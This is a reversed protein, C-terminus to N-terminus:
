KRRMWLWSTPRARWEWLMLMRDLDSFADAWAPLADDPIERDHRSIDHTKDFRNTLREVMGPSHSDRVKVLLDAALLGSGRVPDMLDGEASDVHCLVVSRATKCLAFDAHTWLGGVEVRDAVGNVEALRTCLARAVVDGDRALVRLRPMARALGVAYYGESTGIDIALTYNSAIIGAIVPWLPADLTGLLRPARAGKSARVAYFMGKFPGAQVVDGTQQVVNNALLESRWKALYRLMATLGASSPEDRLRDQLDQWVRRTLPSPDQAPDPM